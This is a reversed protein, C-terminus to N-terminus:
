IEALALTGRTQSNQPLVHWDGNNPAPTSVAGIGLAQVWVAAPLPPAKLGAEREILEPLSAAWNDDIPQGVFHQWAGNAKGFLSLWGPEALVWWGQFNKPLRRAALSVLPNITVDRCGHRALLADLQQAFSEDVAAGVLGQQPPQSLVQIRWQSVEDGYIERLSAAVLAQEEIRSLTKGPSPTLVHRVFHQSLVVEVRRSHWAPDSLAEDLLLLLSAAGREGTTLVRNTPEGRSRRLAVEGPALAIRLTEASWLSV